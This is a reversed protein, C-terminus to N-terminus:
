FFSWSFRSPDHDGPPVLGAHADKGGQQQDLVDGPRAIDLGADGMERGELNLALPQSLPLDFGRALVGFSAVLNLGTTMIRSGSSIIQLPDVVILTPPGRVHPMRHLVPEAVAAHGFDPCGRPCLNEHLQGTFRGLLNLVDISNGTLIGSFFM